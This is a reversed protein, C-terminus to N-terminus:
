RNSKNMEDLMLASHTIAAGARMAAAIWIAEMIERPTAGSRKALRTHGRICYPSQTVHAIALAILHKTKSNLEGEAFVQSTFALFTNRTNPALEHLKTTLEKSMPPFMPDM